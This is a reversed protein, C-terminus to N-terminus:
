RRSLLSVGLEEDPHKHSSWTQHLTLGAIFTMPFSEILREQQSILAASNEAPLFLFSFHSVDSLPQRTDQKMSVPSSGM